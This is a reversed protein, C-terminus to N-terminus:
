PIYEVQAREDIEWVGDGSRHVRGWHKTRVKKATNANGSTECVKNIVAEKNAIILSMDSEGNIGYAGKNENDEDLVIMYYKRRSSEELREDKAEAYVTKGTPQSPEVVWEKTLSPNEQAVNENNEVDEAAECKKSELKAKLDRIQQRLKEMEEQLYDLQAEVATLAGYLKLSELEGIFGIEQKQGFDNGRTKGEGGTGKSKLQNNMDEEKENNILAMDKSKKKGFIM